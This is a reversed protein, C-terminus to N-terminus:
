KNIQNGLTFKVGMDTPPLVNGSRTASCPLLCDQM